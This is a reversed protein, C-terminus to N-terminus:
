KNEKKLDLFLTGIVFAKSITFMIRNNVYDFLRKGEEGFRWSFVARIHEIEERKRKCINKRYEDADTGNMGLIQTCIEIFQEQYIFKGDTSSFIEEVLNIGQYKPTDDCDYRQLVALAKKYIEEESFLRYEQIGVEEVVYEFLPKQKLLISGAKEKFGFPVAIGACPFYKRKRNYFREFPLRYDLPNVKTLGLLYCLYSCHIIGNFIASCEKLAYMTDYLSLFIPAVGKAKVVSLENELRHKENEKLKLNKTKEEVLRQLKVFQEM